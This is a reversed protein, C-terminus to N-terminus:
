SYKIYKILFLTKLVNITFNNDERDPNIYPNDHHLVPVGFQEFIPNNSSIAIDEIGNERLLRITREVLTEGHIMSLHKPTEWKKYSGGCMIVYCFKNM